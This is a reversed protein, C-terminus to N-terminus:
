RQPHGAVPPIPPGRRVSPYLLRQGSPGTHPGIIEPRGAPLFAHESAARICQRQRGIWVEGQDPVLTEEALGAQVRLLRGGGDGLQIRGIILQELEVSGAPERLDPQNGPFPAAVVRKEVPDVREAAVDVHRGGAGAFGAEHRGVVRVVDFRHSPHLAGGFTVAAHPRNRLKRGVEDTRRVIGEVEPPHAHRQHVHFLQPQHLLQGRRHFVAHAEDRLRGAHLPRATPDAAPRERHRTAPCHRRVRHCEHLPHAGAFFTGAADGLAHM